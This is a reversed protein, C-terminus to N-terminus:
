AVAASLTVDYASPCDGANACEETGAQACQNSHGNWGAFVPFFDGRAAILNTERRAEIMPKIQRDRPFKSPRAAGAANAQAAMAMLSQVSVVRVTAQEFEYFMANKAVPERHINVLSNLIRFCIKSCPRARKDTLKTAQKKDAQPPEEVCAGAGTGGGGEGETSWPGVTMLKYGSAEGDSPVLNNTKTVATPESVNLVGRGSAKSVPDEPIVRYAGFANGPLAVAQLTSTGVPHPKVNGAPWCEIVKSLTV